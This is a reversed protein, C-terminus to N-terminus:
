STGKQFQPIHAESVTAEGERSLVGVPRKKCCQDNSVAGLIGLVGDSGRNTSEVFSSVSSGVM